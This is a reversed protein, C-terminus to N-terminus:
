FATLTKHTLGRVAIYKYASNENLLNWVSMFSPGRQHIMFLQNDVSSIVGNTNIWVSQLLVLVIQATEWNSEMQCLRMSPADRKNKM